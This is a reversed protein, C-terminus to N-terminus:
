KWDVGGPNHGYLLAFAVFRAYPAYNLGAIHACFLVYRVHRKTIRSIGPCFPCIGWVSPLIDTIDSYVTAYPVFRVRDQCVYAGIHAYFPCIGHVCVGVFRVSVSLRSMRGPCRYAGYTRKDNLCGRVYRAYRVHGFSLLVYAAFRAYWGMDSM